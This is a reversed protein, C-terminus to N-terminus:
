KIAKRKVLSQKSYSLDQFQNYLEMFCFSFSDYKSGSNCFRIGFGFIPDEENEIFTLQLGEKKKELILLNAKEDYISDSYWFIKNEQVLKQYASTIRNQPSKGYDLIQNYCTAFLPYCADQELITFTGVRRGQNDKQFSGFYDFYLDGNGGYFITMRKQEEENQLIIDRVGQVHDNNRFDIYM